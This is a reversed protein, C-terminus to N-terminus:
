SVLRDGTDSDFVKDNEFHGYCCDPYADIKNTATDLCMPKNCVYESLADTPWNDTLFGGSLYKAQLLRELTPHIPWFSPDAPSASASCCFLTFYPISSYM